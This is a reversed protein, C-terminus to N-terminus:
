SHNRGEHMMGAQQLRQQMIGMPTGGGSGGGSAGNPGFGGLRNPPQPQQQNQQYASGYNVNM